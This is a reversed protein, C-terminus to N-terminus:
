RRRRAGWIPDVTKLGILWENIRGEGLFPSASSGLFRIAGVGYQLMSGYQLM